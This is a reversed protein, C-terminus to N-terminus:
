TASPAYRWARSKVCRGVVAMARAELRTPQRAARPPEPASSVVAEDSSAAASRPTRAPTYTHEIVQGNGGAGGCSRRFRILGVAVLALLVGVTDIGVDVASAHRGAVGAQHIEDTIAYLVALALAWAWPRRRATTTAVARWLLLAMIGFVAMHGLKRVVFDLGEDPVFRLDSQASLVFVLGAWAIVPLWAVIPRGFGRLARWMRENMGPLIGVGAPRRPM